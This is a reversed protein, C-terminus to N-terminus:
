VYEHAPIQGHWAVRSLIQGILLYSSLPSVLEDTLRAAAQYTAFLAVLGPSALM